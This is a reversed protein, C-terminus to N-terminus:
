KDANEDRKLMRYITSRGIGLLKSVKQINNQYKELYYHLIQKNIEELTMEKKLVDELYANTKINLHEVKVEQDDALIMALEMLAKLERVNGPFSYHSLLERSAEALVKTDMRQEKAFQDMFHKALLLVDEGRDRLPPLEIPLGMLRYYLDERFEGSQVMQQLNRHTACIIRCNVKISQNGGVRVIEREQLVRLLKVQTSLDMEGIEDLFLTGNMAEEFKGIRRNMAGTFAGKEHGFLESEILERPIASVNVAVFPGNRLSSNYHIAKAVVEKGTGTEGTISVNITTEAAKELLRYVAKIQKSNGIITKGFNYKNQVEARLTDLEHKLDVRERIQLILKWLREKTDDDKVLYDYAGNKLLSIATSVDNQGSVIVVETSPSEQKIRRLLEEGNYDPLNFDLSVVQPRQVMLKLLEKGSHVKTLRYDPNMSLYHELFSAYWVDDEAIVVHFDKM